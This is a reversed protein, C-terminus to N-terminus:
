HNFEDTHMAKVLTIDDAVTSFHPLLDSIEMGSEGHRKFNAQPGCMKPVGKIFAFKKGELLSPPCDLGHLKQLDPKYDFLELQSPAGAMHMYIIRKAKPAFHPLQEHLDNLASSSRKGTESASFPNCGMLSGLAVAGLGSACQKLFHRRTENQAKRFELEQYLNM